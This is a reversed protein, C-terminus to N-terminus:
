VLRGLIQRVQSVYSGGFLRVHVLLPYVNYLDKRVEWFGDRIGNVEDYREYFPQQFTSFLTTFALEIEPDGYYIAPDIFGAVEDGDFLVNGGWVDGHLLAPPHTTDIYQDLRTSLTEVDALVDAPLRGVDHAQRAMYLLRENAFFEAWDDYWPNPQDLGGILTPGDFGYQDVTHTHLGALLNAAHIHAQTSGRGSSEIFEMILLDNSSHFVRPVPLASHDALYELMDGEITLKSHADGLKVVLDPGEPMRARQVTGVCGGSLPETATPRTGVIQEIRNEVKM